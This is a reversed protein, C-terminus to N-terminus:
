YIQLQFRFDNRTESLEDGVQFQCSCLCKGSQHRHCDESLSSSRHIYGPIHSTLKSTKLTLVINLTGQIVDHHLLLWTACNRPECISGVNTYIRLITLCGKSNVLSVPPVLVIDAAIGAGECVHVKSWWDSPICVIGALALEDEVEPFANFDCCFEM